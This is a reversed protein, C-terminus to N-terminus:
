STATQIEDQIARLKEVSVPIRTPDLYVSQIKQIVNKVLFRAKVLSEKAEDQLHLQCIQTVVKVVKDVQHEDKEWGSQLLARYEKMLNEILTKRDDGVFRHFYAITEWVWAESKTEAGLRSLLDHVRSLSRRASDLAVADERSQEYQRLSGGVIGRVCKEELPPIKDQQQTRMDLLTHCAQIAEDYKELDLCIFLKNV